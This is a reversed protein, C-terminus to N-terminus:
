GRAPGTKKKTGTDEKKPKAAASETEPPKASDSEAKLKSKYDSSRYDTTHFGSGRFLFGAGPGILQKLRPAGCRPCKKRSEKISHFIEFRRHCAECEYDYTPM